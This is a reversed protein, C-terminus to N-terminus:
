IFIRGRVPLADVTFAIGAKISMGRSFYKEWCALVSFEHPTMATNPPIRFLDNKGAHNSTFANPMNLHVIARLLLKFFKFFV